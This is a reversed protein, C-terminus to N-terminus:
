NTSVTGFPYLLGNDMTKFAQFTNANPYTAPQVFNVWNPPAQFTRNGVADQTLFIGVTQGPLAFPFTSATVNGTLLMAFTVDMQAPSILTPMANFPLRIFQSYLLPNVFTPNIPTVTSLDYAGPGIFEYANTQIVNGFTDIVQVTYYTGAPLLVDNGWAKFTIFGNASALYTQSMTSAILATGAVRPIQSGYGCLQVVIGAGQGVGPLLDGATDQLNLNFTIPTPM